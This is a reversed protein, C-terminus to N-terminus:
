SSTFWCPKRVGGFVNCALGASAIATLLVAAELQPEAVIARDVLAVLDRRQVGLIGFHRRGDIVGRSRARQHLLGAHGVELM